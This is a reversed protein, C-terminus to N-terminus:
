LEVAKNSIYSILGLMRARKIADNALRHNKPTVGTLRSSLIKGFESVLWTYTKSYKWDPKIKNDTFWCTRKKMKARDDEESKFNLLYDQQKLITEKDAFDGLKVVLFRVVNENIRLNRELEKVFSGEAEFIMHEFYGRSPGKQPKQPFIKLGLFKKFLINGKWETILTEIKQLFEDKKSQELNPNLVFVTEYIHLM